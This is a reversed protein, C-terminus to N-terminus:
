VEEQNIELEQLLYTLIEGTDRAAALATRFEEAMLKRALKAFIRMHANGAGSERMALLIVVEVPKDDLAGWEVPQRLKLVGLSNASICDTKCHPIAFGFGLGTSFAAERAWLADELGDPTDTRGAAYLLDALEKMVEAKSVCDADLRMLETSILPLRAQDAQFRTLLADVDAATECELAADLLARCATSDLQALTSKLAPINPSSLSLEDFGLGALLPANTLIGAMEGCMGLWREHSQAARAITNLLRLFAPHRVSSLKAVAPNGRDVAFFYQCLDNTGISFFDVVASLQDIILAVSPVEIMIGVRLAADFAVGEAALGAQIEAVRQKFWRAEVVTSVMPAMVWVVGYASARVIARLQSTIIAAHDEYIRLGRYGLFPNSEQPLNLFPLPKDGGVDITRIILTRGRLAEAARRYIAFQEEETPATQCESFIMETRFLGVGEAGVDVASAAETDTAINASVEIRQGDKTRALTHMSDASRALRQSRHEAERDYFRRVAPTVPTIILGRNADVVVECGSVLANADPASSITPIGFSRALIVAHSTAGAETLILARLCERDLALLQRPSLSQASVVCPGTLAITQQSVAGGTLQELLQAGIDQLDVVRERLYISGTARLRASFQQVAEVVAQAATYRASGTLENLLNSLAADKALALTARLIEAATPNAARDLQEQMGTIVAALAANLQQQEAAPDTVRQTRLEDPLVLGSACVVRGIGIGPSVPTGSICTVAEAALVRPAQAVGPAVAEPLPEDCGALRQEIFKVIANYAAQEDGGAVRLLCPDDLLVGASVLDLVSAANAVAGTRQNGLSAQSQFQSVIEALHSAPRAHLGNALPCRFSYELPM